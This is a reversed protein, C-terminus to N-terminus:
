ESSQMRNYDFWLPISVCPKKVTEKLLKIKNYDFWLPISVKERQLSCICCKIQQLRVMTSNLGGVVILVLYYVIINYDFWLPISVAVINHKKLLNVLNYDFWLPISVLSRLSYREKVVPQLRVM